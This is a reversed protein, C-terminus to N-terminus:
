KFNDNTNDDCNNTISKGKINMNTPQKQISNPFHSYSFKFPIADSIEYDTKANTDM